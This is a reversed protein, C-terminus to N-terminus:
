YKGTYVTVVVNNFVGNEVSLENKKAMGLPRTLFGSIKGSITATGNAHEQYSTIEVKLNRGQTEPYKHGYLESDKADGVSSGSLLLEIKDGTYVGPKADSTTLIVNLQRNDPSQTSKFTLMLSPKGNNFQKVGGKYFLHSNVFGNGSWAVGDILATFLGDTSKANGQNAPIPAGLSVFTFNTNFVADKPGNLMLYVTGSEKDASKIDEFPNRMKVVVFTFRKGDASVADIKDGTKIVGSEVMVDAQFNFTPDKDPYVAKIAAKLATQAVTNTKSSNTPGSASSNTKNQCAATGVLLVFLPLLYSQKSFM